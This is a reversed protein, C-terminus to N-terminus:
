VDSTNSGWNSLLIATRDKKRKSVAYTTKHLRLLSRNDQLDGLHKLITKRPLIPTLTISTNETIDSIDVSQASISDIAELDSSRGKITIEEPASVNRTYLDSSNDVVPVDLPVTKTKALEATVTVSQASLNVSKM